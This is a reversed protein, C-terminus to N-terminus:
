GNDQEEEKERHAHCRAGAKVRSGCPQWYRKGDIEDFWPSAAICHAAAWKDLFSRVWAEDCYGGRANTLSAWRCLLEETMREEAPIDAWLRTM